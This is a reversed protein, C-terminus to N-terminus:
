VRQSWRSFYLNSLGVNSSMANNWSWFQIVPVRLLISAKAFLICFGSDLLSAFPKWSRIIVALLHLAMYASLSIFWMQIIKPSSSILPLRWVVPIMISLVMPLLHSNFTCKMLDLSNNTQWLVWCADHRLDPLVGSSMVALKIHWDRGSFLM